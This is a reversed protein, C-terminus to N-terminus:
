NVTGQIRLDTFQGRFECSASLPRVRLHEDEKYGVGRETPFAGSCRIQM